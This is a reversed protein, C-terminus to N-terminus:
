AGQLPHTIALYININDSITYLVTNLWEREKNQFVSRIARQNGELQGRLVTGM